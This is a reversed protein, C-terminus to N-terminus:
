RPIPLHEEDILCLLQYVNGAQDIRHAINSSLYPYDIRTLSKRVIERSTAFRVAFDESRDVLTAPILHSPLMVLEQDVSELMMLTGANWIAGTEEPALPRGIRGEVEEQVAKCMTGYIQTYSHTM